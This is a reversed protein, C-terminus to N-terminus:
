LPLLQRAAVGRQLLLPNELTEQLLEQMEQLLEQTEQFIEQKEQLTSLLDRAESAKRGSDTLADVDTLAHM